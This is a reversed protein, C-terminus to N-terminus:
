WLWLRQQWRVHLGTPCLDPCLGRRYVAPHNTRRLRELWLSLGGFLDTQRQLEASADFETAMVDTPDNPVLSFHSFHSNLSIVDYATADFVANRFDQATWTDNNIANVQLGQGALTSQVAAAQDKLFDYGTVLATQPNLVPAAMFTDLVTAIESPSEVLRGIGYQPIYLERGDVGIPLSAAYYDDSLYYRYTAASILAPNDSYLYTRENSVLTLDVIRRQPIVQDGGVIVIYKLDPYAPLLGYLLSKITRAM